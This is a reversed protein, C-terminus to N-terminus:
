RAGSRPDPIDGEGGHASMTLTPMSTQLTGILSMPRSQIAPAIQCMAIGTSSGDVADPASMPLFVTNSLDTEAALMSIRM